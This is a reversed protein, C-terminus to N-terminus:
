RRPVKVLPVSFSQVAKVQEAPVMSRLKAIALDLLQDIPVGKLSAVVAAIDPSSSASAAAVPAAMPEGEKAELAVLLTRCAQAGASRAEETAGEAVAAVIADILANM